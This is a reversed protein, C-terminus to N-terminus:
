YDGFTNKENRLRNLAEIPFIIDVKTGAPNNQEDYLDIYNVMAGKVALFQNLNEMWNRVLWTGRSEMKGLGQGYLLSKPRGIGNDIISIILKENLIEAKLTLKPIRKDKLPLLGHWIANEIIPQTILPPIYIDELSIDKSIDQEFIFKDNFRLQELEINTRILRIEDALYTVYKDSYKLVYRLFMSFKAIYQCAKDIENRIMLQQIATLSNSIFHPNIQAKLATLRYEALLRATNAKRKEKLKLNRLTLFVIAVSLFISSGLFTKTQWFAPKVYFPIRIISHRNYIGSYFPRVSLVYDGPRLRHLYVQKGETVGNIQDPGQLEYSLAYAPTEYALIDFNFYVSNEHHALQIDKPEIKRNNNVISELYFRPPPGTFALAKEKKITMLGQKTAIYIFGDFLEAETVENNVLLKWSNSRDINNLKNIFLGKDASLLVISDQIINIHNVVNSPINPFEILRNDPLLKYLGYGKTCIWVNRQKDVVFNLIIKDNLLSLYGPRSHKAGNLLIIGNTTGILYEGSKRETLCRPRDKVRLFMKSDNDKYRLVGTPCIFILANDEHAFGYSAAQTKFFNRSQNLGAEADLFLTMNKTGLMISGNFYTMDTIYSTNNGLNLKILRNRKQEFLNGDSTGIFFRNDLVKLMSIKSSLEQINRYYINNRNRCYYVGREITSIWIGNRHDLAIDSIVCGKFYFALINLRWDLHYLGNNTGIWVTSDPSPEMNMVHEKFTISRVGGDKQLVTLKNDNMYYYSGRYKCLRTRGGPFRTSPIRHIIKDKEDVIKCVYNKFSNEGTKILAYEEGVKKFYINGSDNSYKRSLSIVKNGQFLYSSTLTSFYINSHEDILMDFIVEKGEVIAESMKEMGKLLFASDNRVKYLEAKSNALYLDGKTSEKIVYFSSEQFQINKCVQVFRTGNHKAIGYETCAWIYGKKDEYINYVEGSPLGQEINLQEFELEQAKVFTHFGLFLVLFLWSFVYRFDSM